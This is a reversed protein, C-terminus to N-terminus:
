TTPLLSAYNPRRTFHGATKDLKLWKTNSSLNQHCGGIDFKTSIRGTPTAGICASLRVSRISYASKAVTRFRRDYLDGPCGPFTSQGTEPPVPRFCLRWIGQLCVAISLAFCTGRPIETVTYYKPVEWSVAIEFCGRGAIQGMNPTTHIGTVTYQPQTLHKTAWPVTVTHVANKLM